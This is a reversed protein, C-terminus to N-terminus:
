TCTPAKAPALPRAGASTLEYAIAHSSAPVPVARGDVRLKVANNGLTLRMRVAHYVHTTEGATLTAGHILPKGAEDVLCVYVTGTPILRVSARAPAAARPGAHRRVHTSAAPRATRATARSATSSGSGPAGSGGLSGLAWLAGLLLAVLGGAIAWRPSVGPGRRGGHGGGGRRERGLQPSIPMLEHESPREYRLKYDEVLMRADIGLYDAYERLFSKVFTSGPLLGWEENELARLYKARIKTAEEVETIDIRARMRAERLTAGIEPM